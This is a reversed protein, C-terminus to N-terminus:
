GAPDALHPSFDEGKEALLILALANLADDAFLYQNRAAWSWTEAVTARRNRRRYDDAALRTAIVRLTHRVDAPTMDSLKM